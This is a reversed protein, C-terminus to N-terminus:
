LSVELTACPWERSDMNTNTPGTTWTVNRSQHYSSSHRGFTARANRRLSNECFGMLLVDHGSFIREGSLGGEDRAGASADAEGDSAAEALHARADAKASAVLLGEVVRGRAKAVFGDLGESEGGVDGAGILDGGEDVGSQFFEGGDVDEDVVRADAAEAGNM